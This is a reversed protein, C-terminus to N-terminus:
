RTKPRRARSSAELDEEIARKAEPGIGIFEVGIGIGPLCYRVEGRTQVEINSRTLRFRLIVVAGEPFHTSTNVFMGQVSIDPPRIPIDVGGGEYSLHLESLQQFRPESRPADYEPKSRTRKMFLASWGFSPAEFRAKPEQHRCQTPPRLLSLVPIGSSARTRMGRVGILGCKGGPGRPSDGGANVAPRRLLNLASYLTTSKGSGTPGTVLLMGQPLALLTTIRESIEPPFGLNAFSLLPGSTELLRIVIKEGYQTPLTSVRLDIKHPGIAVM